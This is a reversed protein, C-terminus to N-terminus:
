HPSKAIFLDEESLAFMELYRSNCQKQLKVNLNELESSTVSRIKFNTTVQSYHKDIAEQDGEYVTLHLMGCVPVKSIQDIFGDIPIFTFFQQFFQAINGVMTYKAGWSTAAHEGHKSLTATDKPVLTVSSTGLAIKM